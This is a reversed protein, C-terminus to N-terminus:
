IRKVSEDVHSQSQFFSDSAVQLSSLARQLQMTIPGPASPLHQQWPRLGCRNDPPCLVRSVPQIGRLANTIFAEQWTDREDAHPAAECVRVGLAQCAQIVRARLLGPLVAGSPPCTIVCPTSQHSIAPESSSATSTTAASARRSLDESGAAPPPRYAVVFFNTVLGETLEGGPTALLVEACGPPQLEELHRREAAWASWKAGPTRRPPGLVAVGVPASPDPPQYPKVYVSPRLLHAASQSSSAEDDPTQTTGHGGGAKPAAAEQQAATAGLSDPSLLLLQAKVLSPLVIHVM